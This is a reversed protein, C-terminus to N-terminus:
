VLYNTLCQNTQILSFQLFINKLLSLSTYEVLIPGQSSIAKPSGSSLFPVSPHLEGVLGDALVRPSHVLDGSWSQTARDVSPVETSHNPIAGMGLASAATKM